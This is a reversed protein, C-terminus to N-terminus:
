GVASLTFCCKINFLTELEDQCFGGLTTLLVNTNKTGALIYEVNLLSPVISLPQSEPGEPGLGGCSILHLGLGGVLLGVPRFADVTKFAKKFQNYYFVGRKKFEIIVM